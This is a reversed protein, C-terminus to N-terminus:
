VRGNVEMLTGYTSPGNVGGYNDWVKLAMPSINARSAVNFDKQEMTWKLSNSYLNGDFTQSYIFSPFSFTIILIIKKM